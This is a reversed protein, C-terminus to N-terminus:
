ATNLLFLEFPACGFGAERQVQHQADCGALRLLASRGVDAGCHNIQTLEFQSEGNSPPASILRPCEQHGHM